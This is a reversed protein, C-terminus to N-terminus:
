IIRMYLENIPIWSQLNCRVLTEYASTCLEADIQSGSDFVLRFGAALMRTLALRPPDDVSMSIKVAEELAAVGQEPGIFGLPYM